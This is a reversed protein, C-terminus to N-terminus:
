DTFENTFINGINMVGKQLREFIKKIVLQMKVLNIDDTKQQQIKPVHLHGTPMKKGNGAPTALWRERLLAVRYFIENSLYTGGSGYNIVVNKQLYAPTRKNISFYKPDKRKDVPKGLDDWIDQNKNEDIYFSQNYFVYFKNNDPNYEISPVMDKPLTTQIWNFKKTEDVNPNADTLLDLSTSDALRRAGMNDPSGGRIITAFRDINLFDPALDQSMTMILDVKKTSDKIYPGLYKEIIGIGNGADGEHGDFDKYRVPVIMTQIFGIPNNSDDKIIKNHLALATAGSPNGQLPNDKLGFPDFGTILIKKLSPQSSFDVSKYGRSKEEMSLILQDRLVFDKLVSPHNKLAVEMKLRAWYLIRDDAIGYDYASALARARDLIQPAYLNVANTLKSAASTDDPVTTVNVANVFADVIDGMKTGTLSDDLDYIFYDEWLKKECIVAGDVIPSPITEKVEIVTTEAENVHVVTYPKNNASSDVITIKEKPYIGIKWGQISIKKNLQDIGVITYRTDYNKTMGGRVEEPNRSYFSPLPQQAAFAASTYMTANTSYIFIDTLPYSIRSIGSTDLGQVGIKYKEYVKGNSDTFPSGSVKECRVSKQNLGSINKLTNYEAKTIGLILGAQLLNSSSATTDTQLNFTLVQETNDIVTNFNLNQNAFITQVAFFDESANVGGIQPVRNTNEQSSVFLSTPMKYFVVRGDEAPDTSRFKEFAIGSDAVVGYNFASGDIYKSDLSALWQTPKVTNWLIINDDIAFALDLPDDYKIVTDPWTTASDILRNYNLKIIWAIPKKEGAVLTNEINPYTFVIDKTWAAGSTDLSTLLNLGQVFKEPDATTNAPNFLESDSFVKLQGHEVFLLPSRNDNIRLTLHFENVENTTAVSDSKILLPWGNTAYQSASLTSTTGTQINTTDAGVGKYNTYFNYSRKIENRIDIYLTNATAFKSVVSNYIDIGKKLEFVTEKAEPVTVTPDYSPDSFSPDHLEASSGPGYSAFDRPPDQTVPVGDDSIVPVQVSGKATNHISYYVAPDIFRLIEERKVRKAFKEADTAEPMGVVNIEYFPKRAMSLDPHYDPEDLIVEFGFEAGGDTYFDGLYTGRSVKSYQSDADIRFFAADIKDTATQVTPNWGIFKSYFTDGEQKNEKEFIEWARKIYDSAGTKSRVKTDDEDLFADARLGRYIFYKIPSFDLGPNESPKLILNVTNVSSKQIFIDGKLVAFAKVSETSTFGSTVRFKNSADAPNPGFALAPSQTIKNLEAFVCSKPILPMKHIGASGSGEPANVNTIITTEHINESIVVGTVSSNITAKITVKSLQDTVNVSGKFTVATQTGTAIESTGQVVPQEISTWANSASPTFVLNWNNGSKKYLAKETIDNGLFTRTVEVMIDAVDISGIGANIDVLFNQFSSSDLQMSNDLDEGNYPNRFNVNAFVIERYSLNNTFEAGIGNTAGDHPSVQVLLFIKQGCKLDPVFKQDWQLSVIKEGGAALTDQPMFVEGLFYTENTEFVRIDVHNDPDSYDISYQDLWQQPFLFLSQVATNTDKDIVGTPAEGDSIAVYFRVWADLSKMSGDPGGNGINKIRAYVNAKHQPVTITWQDNDTHGNKAEFKICVSEGDIFQEEGTIAIGSSFGDGDKKWKFKDPNSGSGVSSIQITYVTNEFRAAIVKLDNLGTGTFVSDGSYLAPNEHPAAKLYDIPNTVYDAPQNRIWIDPSNIPNVVPNTINIGEDGLYDRVVLDRYEHKYAIAAKVAEAADLRGYGSRYSYYPILGGIVSTGVPFSSILKDITLTNGSIDRVIRFESTGIQIAQGISFGEPDLVGIRTDGVNVAISLTTNGTGPNLFCTDPNYVAIPSSNEKTNYGTSVLDFPLASDRMLQRVEVWSLNKNVSLVLGAIGSATPCSASTGGMMNAGSARGGIVSTGTLQTYYLKRDIGSAAYGASFADKITITQGDIVSEIIRAERIHPKTSSPAGIFIAQGVEMGLTSEVSLTETGATATLNLRTNIEGGIVFILQDEYSSEPLNLPYVLEIKQNIFDVNKIKNKERNSNNSPTGILIDQGILFGKVSNLTLIKSVIDVSGIQSTSSGVKFTSLVYIPINTLYDKNLSTQLQVRYFVPITIFEDQNSIKVFEITNNNYVGYGSNDKDILLWKGPVLGSTDDVDLYNQGAYANKLLKINLKAPAEPVSGLGDDELINLTCPAYISYYQDPKHINERYGDPGFRIWEHPNDQNRLYDTHGPACFEIVAKTFIGFTSYTTFIEENNNNQSSAGVAIMFDQYALDTSVIVDGSNGSSAFNLMGRGIRGYIGANKIGIKVIKNLENIPFPLGYSHNAIDPSNIGGLLAPYFLAPKSTGTFYPDLGAMWTFMKATNSINGPYKIGMLQLNPGVGVSGEGRNSAGIIGAVMTGHDDVIEDNNPVLRTFDYFTKVKNYFAKHTPTLTDDQLTVSEIGSDVVAVTIESDGYEIGRNKLLAWAGETNIIKHNWQEPFYINNPLGHNIFPSFIQPEIHDVITQNLLEIIQDLFKFDPFAKYKFIIAGGSHSLRSEFNFNFTEAFQQLEEDTLKKSLGVIIQGNLFAINNIDYKVLCGIEKIYSLQALNHKEKKLESTNLFDPFRIVRYKQRILKASLIEYVLNHNQVYEDLLSSDEKSSLLLGVLNEPQNFPILSMGNFYSKMGPLGLVISESHEQENERIHFQITYDKLGEKQVLLNYQGHPLDRYIWRQSVKEPLIDVINEKYILTILPEDIFHNNYDKISIIM